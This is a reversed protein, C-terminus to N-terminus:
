VFQRTMIRQVVVSINNVLNDMRETDFLDNKSYVDEVIQWLLSETLSGWHV